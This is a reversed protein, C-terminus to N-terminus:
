FMSDTTGGLFERFLDSYEERALGSLRHREPEWLRIRKGQGAFIAEKEIGAFTLMDNPMNIRGNAAMSIKAVEEFYMSLFKSHRPDDPNLRMMIKNVREEWIELPYINLCTEYADKEVVFIGDFAESLEKKFAAPLVVRGKLDVSVPYKSTFTAM